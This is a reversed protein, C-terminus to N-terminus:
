VSPHMDSKLLHSAVCAVRVGFRVISKEEDFHEKKQSVWHISLFIFFTSLSKSSLPRREIRSADCIMCLTIAPCIVTGIPVITFVHLRLCWRFPLEAVSMKQELTGDDGLDKKRAGFSSPVCRTNLWVSSLADAVGGDKKRCVADCFADQEIEPSLGAM